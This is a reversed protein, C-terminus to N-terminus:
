LDMPTFIVGTTSPSQVLVTSCPLRTFCSVTVKASNFVLPFIKHKSTQLFKIYTSKRTVSLNFGFGVVSVWEYLM